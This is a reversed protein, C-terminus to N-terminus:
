LAGLPLGRHGIQERCSESPDRLDRPGGLSLESPDSSSRGARLAALSCGSRRPLTQSWLITQVLTAEPSGNARM